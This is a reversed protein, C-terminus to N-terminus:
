RACLCIFNQEMSSYDDEKEEESSWGVMAVVGWSIQVTMHLNNVMFTYVYMYMYMYMGALIINTRVQIVTLTILMNLSTM